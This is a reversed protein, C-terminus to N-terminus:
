TSHQSWTKGRASCYIKINIYLYSKCESHQCSLFLLHNWISHHTNIDSNPDPKFESLDYNLYSKLYSVPVCTVICGVILSSHASPGVYMNTGLKTVRDGTMDFSGERDPLKNGAPCPFKVEKSKGSEDFLRCLGDCVVGWFIMMLTSLCVVDLIVDVWQVM